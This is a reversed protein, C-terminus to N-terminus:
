TMIERCEIQSAMRGGFTRVGASGNFTTTGASNTGARMTVAVIPGGADSNPGFYEVIVQCRAGATAPRSGVAAACADLNSNIFLAAAIANDTNSSAFVGSARVSLLNCERSYPLSDAVYSSAVMFEDGETSQPITDDIPLPVIGTDVASTRVGYINMVSGPTPVGPRWVFTADPAVWTGPTALGTRYEMFGLLMYVRQVGSGGGQFYFTGATNSSGNLDAKLEAIGIGPLNAVGFEAGHPFGAFVLMPNIVAIRLTGSVNVAAVWVRFPTNAIAGLTAGAPITESQASTIALASTKTADGPHVYTSILGPNGASHDAGDDGKLAITLAGAAASISLSINSPGGLQVGLLRRAADLDAATVVPEMASSVATSGTTNVATPTGTADFYLTTNARDAASPLEIMTEGRPARLSRRSITALQQIQMNEDDIDEDLTAAALEGGEQYDYDSRAYPVVRALVVVALSAPPTTFTCTGGTDVGLGSLTYGTSAVGDITAEFHAAKRIEFPFAFAQTVGNGAYAIETDAASTPM